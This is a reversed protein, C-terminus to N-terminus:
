AVVNVDGLDLILETDSAAWGALQAKTVNSDSRFVANALFALPERDGHVSATAGGDASLCDPDGLAGEIVDGSVDFLALLEPLRDRGELAGLEHNRVRGHPGFRGPSEHISCTRENVVSVGIVLEGGDTCHRFAEGTVDGHM